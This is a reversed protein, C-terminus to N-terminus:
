EVGILQGVIVEARKQRLRLSGEELFRHILDYPSCYSIM